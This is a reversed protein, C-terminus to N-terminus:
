GRLTAGLTYVIVLLDPLPQFYKVLLETVEDSNLNGNGCGPLPMALTGIGLSEYNNVVWCLGRDVWELRSNDKWHDKTPFNLILQGGGVGEYLYPLGPRVEQLRCRRQYDLFMAPFKRKFELAIGKGMVGVCNVTNTIVQADSEFLSIGHRFSLM